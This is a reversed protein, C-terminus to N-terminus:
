LTIFTRAQEKQQTLFMGTHNSKRIFSEELTIRKDIDLQSRM